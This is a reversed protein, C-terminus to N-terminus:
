AAGTVRVGGHLSSKAKLYATEATTPNGFTGLHILRGNAQIRATFKDGRRRVGCVGLASRRTVATNRINDGHPVDRLNSIRNDDRLGNIHDIEHTPWVGHVMFWALRHARYRRGGVVVVRYGYETLCGAVDGARMARGRGSRRWRLVGTDPEYKILDHLNM